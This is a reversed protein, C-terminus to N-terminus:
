AGQIKLLLNNAFALLEPKSTPIDDEEITIASKKAVGLDVLNQRETRADTQNAAYRLVHGGTELRYVRM